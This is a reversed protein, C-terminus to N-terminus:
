QRALLRSSWGQAHELDFALRFLMEEEGQRAALHSGILLGEATWYLPVSMAPWGALSAAVTYSAVHRIHDMLIEAPKGPDCSHLPFAIDPVTPCLLMDVDTITKEVARGSAALVDQARVVDDPGWSRVRDALELTFPELLRVPFADGMQARLMDTVLRVAFGSLGFFAEATDDAFFQPPRVEIISYGFSRCLSVTEDLGALAQASAQTGFVSETYYGIRLSRGVGHSLHKWPPPPPGRQESDRAVM